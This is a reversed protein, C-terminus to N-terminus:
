SLVLALHLENNKIVIGKTLFLFFQFTLGCISDRVKVAWKAKKVLVLQPLLPDAHCTCQALIFANVDWKNERSGHNLENAKNPSSWHFCLATKRWHSKTAFM